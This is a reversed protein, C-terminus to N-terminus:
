HILYSLWCPIAVNADAFLLCMASVHRLSASCVASMHVPCYMYHHLVLRSLM